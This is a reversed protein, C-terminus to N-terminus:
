ANALELRALMQAWKIASEDRPRRKGHEWRWLASTHVGVRQAMEDQRMKAQMRIRRGSGDRAYRAAALLLQDRQDDTM